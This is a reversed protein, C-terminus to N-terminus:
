LSAEPDNGFPCEREAGCLAPDPCEVCVISDLKMGAREARVYALEAPDDALEEALEADLVDLFPDPDEETLDRFTGWGCASPTM